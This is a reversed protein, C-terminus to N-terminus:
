LYGEYFLNMESMLCFGRRLVFSSENLHSYNAVVFVFNTNM